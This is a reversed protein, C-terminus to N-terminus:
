HAGGMHRGLLGDVTSVATRLRDAEATLATLGEDRLRYYRRNRGGVVEERDVEILQQGVLRDLAGYLTGATVAVSGESLKKARKAIGYGHLPEGVLAALIYYTAQQMTMRYM